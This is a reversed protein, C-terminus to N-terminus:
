LIPRPLSGDRVSKPGTFKDSGDRDDDDDDNGSSTSLTPGQTTKPPRTSTIRNLAYCEAQPGDCEVNGGVAEIFISGDDRYHVHCDSRAECARAADIGKMAFAPTAAILTGIVLASVAIAKM